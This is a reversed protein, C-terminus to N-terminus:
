AELEGTGCLLSSRSCLLALSKCVGKAAMQARSHIRVSQAWQRGVAWGECAKLPGHVDRNIGFARERQSDQNSTAACPLIKRELCSTSGLLGSGFSTPRGGGGRGGAAGRRLGRSSDRGGGGGGPFACVGRPGGNSGPCSCVDTLACVSVAQDRNDFQPRRLPQQVSRRCQSVASVQSDVSVASVSQRCQSCQSVAYVSQRCPSRPSVAYVSQVSQSCVSFASVSQRCQSSCRSPKSCDFPAGPCPCPMVSASSRRGSTASSWIWSIM